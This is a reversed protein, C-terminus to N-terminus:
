PTSPVAPSGSVEDVGIAVRGMVDAIAIMSNLMDDDALTSSALAIHTADMPYVAADIDIWRPVGDIPVLAQAWMHYGFVQRAGAFQDVYVLGSVVRSPIGATRVLAALLVAHESCDGKRTRCVESATAFGVGLSSETIHERVATTLFEAVSKQDAFRKNAMVSDLLDRIAPDTTDAASSPATLRTDAIEADTAAAPEDLDITLRGTKADIRDFRQSGMTPIDPLADGTSTLTYVGRRVSRPNAIPKDPQVLVSAMLEPANLKSLAFEKESRRISLSIGGFDIESRITAGAKEDVFEHTEVGPLQSTTVVWEVAPVVKGEAEVEQRGLIRHSATVVQLGSTADLTTYTFEQAGEALKQEILASVESPSMWSGAPAPMTEETKRGLQEKTCVVQDGEFRYSVNTKAMGLNQMSRIELIKGEPSELTGSKMLIEITQGMRALSISLETEDRVNGNPMVETREVMWGAREGEMELAYWREENTPTHPTANGRSIFGLLAVIATLVPMFRRTTPTLM